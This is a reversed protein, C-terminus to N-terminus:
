ESYAIVFPFTEDILDKASTYHSVIASESALHDHYQEVFLEAFVDLAERLLPTSKTALLAFAVDLSAIRRILLVGEEFLIYNVAGRGLSEDLLNSVGTLAGSFLASDVLGKQEWSYTFYEIGSETNFVTLRFVKFRLVFGLKPQSAFAYATLVAGTGIFLYDTGPVIWVLGSGFAFFSGPGALIAGLLSYRSYEKLQAPAARHIVFMYYLWFIGVILFVFTGVLSFPGTMSLGVEGLASIHQTVYTSDLGYILLATASATVLVLKRSDPSDRSLSDVMFAVGFVLLGQILIGLRYILTDLLLYAVGIFLNGTLLLSWTIAMFLYQRYGFNRYGRISIFLALIEPIVAVLLTLAGMTVNLAM